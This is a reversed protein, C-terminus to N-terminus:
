SEFNEDLVVSHVDELLALILQKGSTFGGDGDSIEPKFLQCRFCVGM